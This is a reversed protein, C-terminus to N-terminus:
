SIFSLMYILVDRPLGWKKRKACLLLTFATRRIEATYLYAHQPTFYHATFRIANHEYCEVCSSGLCTYCHVSQRVLHVRPTHCKLRKMVRAEVESYETTHKCDHPLFCEQCRTMGCSLCVTRVHGCLPGSQM